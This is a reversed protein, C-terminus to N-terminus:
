NTRKDDGLALEIMKILKSLESSKWDGPLSLYALRNPGLPFPTPIYGKPTIPADGTSETATQRQEAALDTRSDNVVRETSRTPYIADSDVTVLGSEQLMDIVTKVFAVNRNDKSLGAAVIIAGRLADLTMSGRARVIAVLRALPQSQKVVEELAERVIEGNEHSLGLAFKSGVETLKNEDSRLIGISRLFGNCGSVLTRPKGAIEAVDDVGPNDHDRVADYASIIRKLMEWSAAPITLKGTDDTM